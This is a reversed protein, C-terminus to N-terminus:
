PEDERSFFRPVLDAGMRPHTPLPPDSFTGHLDRFGSGPLITAAPPWSLDPNVAFLERDARQRGWRERFDNLWSV